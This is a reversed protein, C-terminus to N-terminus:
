AGPPRTKRLGLATAEDPHAHTWDHHARCLTVVNDVELYGARWASRAIPEHGDLPGWCAVDVVLGAAVCGGDRDLASAVVRRRKVREGSRRASVPKLPGRRDLPALRRLGNQTSALPESRRPM